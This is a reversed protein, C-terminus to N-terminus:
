RSLDIAYGFDLESAEETKKIATGISVIKLIIDECHVGIEDTMRLRKEIWTNTKVDIVGEANMTRAGENMYQASLERAMAFGFTFDAVENINKITWYKRNETLRKNRM